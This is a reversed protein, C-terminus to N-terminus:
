WGTVALFRTLEAEMRSGVNLLHHCLYTGHGSELSLSKQGVRPGKKRWFRASEADRTLM